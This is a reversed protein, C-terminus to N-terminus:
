QYQSPNNGKDNTFKYHLSTRSFGDICLQFTGGNLDLVEERQGLTLYFEFERAGGQEWRYHRDTDEHFVIIGFSNVNVPILKIANNASGPRINRSFIMSNDNFVSALNSRLYLYNPGSFNVVNPSQLTSTAPGNTGSNFGLLEWAKEAASFSVSISGAFAFSLKGTTTSYSATVSIASLQSSIAAIWSDPTYNGQPWTISTANVTM